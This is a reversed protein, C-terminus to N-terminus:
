TNKWDIVLARATVPDFLLSTIARQVDVYNGSTEDDDQFVRVEETERRVEVLGDITLPGLTGEEGEPPQELGTDIDRPPDSLGANVAEAIGNLYRASIVDGPAIIPVRNAM